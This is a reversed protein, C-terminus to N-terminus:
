GETFSVTAEWAGEVGGTVLGLAEAETGDLADARGEGPM